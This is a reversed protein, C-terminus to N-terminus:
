NSGFSESPKRINKIVSFRSLVLHFHDQIIQDFNMTNLCADGFTGNLWHAGLGVMEEKHTQLKLSQTHHPSFNQAFTPTEESLRGLPNDESERMESAKNIQRLCYECQLIKQSGKFASAFKLWLLGKSHKYAFYKCASLLKSM